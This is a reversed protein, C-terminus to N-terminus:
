AAAAQLEEAAEAFVLADDEDGRARAVKSLGALARADPGHEDVAAAWEEAASDLFGRRLYMLALQERRERAPVGALADALPLLTAFADFEQVRLLAELSTVLLTGAPAPVAAPGEEVLGARAAWAALMVRDHWPLGAREARALAEAAADADGSVIAAFAQSTAANPATSSTDAVEAAVAAADAWRSQSLLTEALAVRAADDEPEVELLARLQGEAAEAAGAGHLTAGLVFRVHPSVDGVRDAVAAVVAEGDAGNALMARVLPDLADLAHPHDALTQLMLAEATVTEGRALLVSALQSAAGFSGAGVVRLFNGPADGLELCRRLLAEARPLDGQEKAIAAQEHVLDTFGEFLELGREAVALAEDFRGANRLATTYRVALSPAFPQDAHAPDELLLEWARSFLEVARDHDAIAGYESGLNFLLFHHEGEEELQRELLEMNRRTKDKAVRTTFLYGDHDVRLEVTEMRELGDSALRGGINEHVRGDFRFEPRNRFFRLGESIVFRREDESGVRNHITLRYADRWTRRTLDRLKPADAADLWEDADLVLVWDGTAADIGVNRAEAFDDTWVHDIVKAGYREAIAKTADTSGTDVLVIEDVADVASRLCRELVAEEDRAIMCLSIRGVPGHKARAAVVAARRELGSLERAIAPPVKVSVGQKRRRKLERINRRLHELRPDLGVAARWLADAGRLAGLEYLAVGALNLVTPEAPAHELVTLAVRASALLVAADDPTSAGPRAQLGLEVLTRCAVYRRQPDDLEIAAPACATYAELDRAALAANARQLIQVERSPAPAPAPVPAAATPDILRLAVTLHDVPWSWAQTPPHEIGDPRDNLSGPAPDSADEM